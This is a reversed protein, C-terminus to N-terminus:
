SRQLFLRTSAIHFLDRRITGDNNKSNESIMQIHLQSPMTAISYAARGMMHVREMELHMRSRWSESVAEGDANEHAECATGHAM